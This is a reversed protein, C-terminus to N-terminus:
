QQIFFEKEVIITGGFIDSYIKLNSRYVVRRYYTRVIVGIDFFKFIVSPTM